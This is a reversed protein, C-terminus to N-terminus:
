RSETVTLRSTASPSTREPQYYEWAVAASTTIEVPMTPRLRYPIALSQGAGLSRLYVIVTRPTIQYKDVRGARALQSFGASEPEFGAPIPLDVMVMSLPSEGSNQVVATAVTSEGLNMNTKDFNLTVTLSPREASAPIAATHYAVALQYATAGGSRDSITIEHRGAPLLPSLDVQRMVDSQDRGIVLPAQSHGDIAIEIKREVSDAFPKGTAGLLAKLALVTAQTSHWTGFADKQENLWTLAGRLTPAHRGASHQLALTALATSEVQRSIGGGYFLTHGRATGEWWVRKGGASSQKLTELRRFYPSTMESRQDLAAVANAVLAVIYPDDLTTADHSVLFDLAKRAGISGRDASDGGFVAWAVYATTGLRALNGAGGTPDEHLLHGEPEWTGDSKQQSLLWRRTREIVARDVDHVRAMDNFEMLGYASLVRNAPPKGFWDFGGGAIEFTLLRQYGLHILQRAQAEVAPVTKKTRTLYDLALVNPYTTSSTQEFCGSPRRFVGELGEVLQSFNSPYIKLTATVSADIADAPIVVPLRAPEHLDGNAVLESKQGDPVIEVTREVADAVEGARAAVRLTQKGVRSARLRYGVSKVEGAALEVMQEAPGMREFSSASDLTLKVTQPRDLYNYVAVPVTVEDGRTLAVPLNLDVFFPQFVRVASQIAGLEGNASVASASLRWTTISDALDVDINVVGNDDTILEPRWLLTEPFWQRLRPAPGTEALAAGSFDIKAQKANEFALGLQKLDNKAQSRRAAERAQQVAPLLLAVLVAIAVCGLLTSVLCPAEIQKVIAVFALLFLSGIGALFFIVWIANVFELGKRRQIETQQAKAPFSSLMLTHPGSSGRLNAVLEKPLWGWGEVLKEWDPRELVEFVRPNNDLFPLLKQRIEERSDVDRGAGRAFIAQEFQIRREPALDSLSDPSWPYAALVPKLLEQELTFFQREIGPKQELVSFVAEDVAALSIAGPIPKGSPGTLRFQLRAKDGPRYEPRDQAVDIRLDNAQSVYLVRRKRVPLGNASFRYACLEITGFLDAPLDIHCYGRGNTMPVVDTLMTQGDKIFDLFVPERGANGLTTLELTEGGAYTAKDTRVLFDDVPDSREFTFERHGTRGERDTARLTWHLAVSTGQVNMAAVGMEDTSFEEGQGSVSIRVQAPRGDVYTALLFVRNLVGEVLTGGEPVVEIHIPEAAFISTETQSQEQGAADRVKITLSIRSQGADRGHGPMNEPLVFEFEARGSSDTHTNLTSRNDDGFIGGAVGIEVEGNDVPKGFFYAASVIGAVREGPQYYPKDFEVTLKFKPLVYRQVTVTTESRTDGRECAVQYPGEIVEEALPCDASSIGFRSTVGRQRFIVNGKPDTIAFMTDHGAVPKLDPRRLALSRMRIVQGPQYVPKDSSVMLKWSRKLTVTRDIAEVGWAPHARVRLEYEGPQWDPWHIRPTGTGSSDTRFSALRIPAGQQRDALEVDVPVDAIPSQDDHRLVVVRLSGDAGALLESQGLVRLDYPSPSLNLYYLHLGGLMLLVTAGALLGIRGATWRPARYELIRRETQRILRDPAEVVPLAHLAGLRKRAEEMAVQCIRCSEVHRELRDRDAASLVDHLYPDVFELVHCHPPLM